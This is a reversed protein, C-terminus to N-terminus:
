ISKLIASCPPIGGNVMSELPCSDLGRAVIYPTYYKDLINEVWYNQEPWTEEGPLYWDHIFVPIKTERLIDLYFEAIGTSHIADIFFLQSEQCSKLIEDHSEFINCDIYKIGGKNM